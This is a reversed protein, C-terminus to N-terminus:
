PKDGPGPPKEFWIHMKFTKAREVSYQVDAVGPSAKLKQRFETLVTNLDRGSERGAGELYIEHPQLISQATAGSAGSKSATTTTAPKIMALKIWLEEYEHLLRQTVGLGRVFDASPNVREALRDVREALTSAETRLAEYRQADKSLATDRSQLAAVGESAVAVDHNGIVAAAALYIVALVGAAILFSTRQVLTRKKRVTEPVIALKFFREEISTAALGLPVALEWPAQKAAEAEDPPLSGLDLSRLPDFRECPVGFNAALYEPLGRLSAGGGSVYIRDIRLDTIKTQTRCFAVTSQALSFIQGSPGALARSAKEATPDSYRAQGPPAATAKSRKLEEGKAWDVGLAAMIAETFARGGVSLNRAFLLDGDRQIALDTNDAGIDLLLTTEGARFPGFRLFSNYLGLSDPCAFLPTIGAAGLPSFREELFAEKALGVVVTSEGAEDATFTMPRYDSAVGGGAKEAIERVEFAMLSRLRHEPMPPVQTYRLIADRGTLGIVARGRKIGAEALSAVCERPGAEASGTRANRAVATRVIRTVQIEKGKRRVAVAKFSDSGFDIGLGSTAM